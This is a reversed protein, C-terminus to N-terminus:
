FGCNSPHSHTLPRSRLHVFQYFPDELGHRHQEDEGYSRSHSRNAGLGSSSDRAKEHGNNVFCVVLSKRALRSLSAPGYGALHLLAALPDCFRAIAGTANEGWLHIVLFSQEEFKDLM